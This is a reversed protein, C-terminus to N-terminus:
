SPPIALDHIRMSAVPDGPVSPAVTEKLQTLRELRDAKSLQATATV